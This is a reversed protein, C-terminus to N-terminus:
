LLLFFLNLILFHTKNKGFQIWWAHQGLRIIWRAYAYSPNRLELRTQFSDGKGWHSLQKFTQWYLDWLGGCLLVRPFSSVLTPHNWPFINKSSCLSTVYIWLIYLFMCLEKIFWQMQTTFDADPSLMIKLVKFLVPQFVESITGFVPLTLKVQQWPRLYLCLKFSFFLYFSLM